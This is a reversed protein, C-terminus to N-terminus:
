AAAPAMRDLDHSSLGAVAKITAVIKDKVVLGLAIPVLYIFWGGANVIFTEMLLHNARARIDKYESLECQELVRTRREVKTKFGDDTDLKRHTEHLFSFTLKHLNDMYWSMSDDLMHFTDDGCQKPHESKFNRLRDRLAFLQFRIDQRKSPLLIAEYVLHWVAVFGTFIIACTAVTIM